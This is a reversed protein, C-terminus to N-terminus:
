HRILDVITGAHELHIIMGHKFEMKKGDKNNDINLGDIVAVDVQNLNEVYVKKNINTGVSITVNGFGSPEGIDNLLSDLKFSPKKASRYSFVPIDLEDNIDWSGYNLYRKHFVVMYVAFIVFLIGILGLLVRKFRSIFVAIKSKASVYVTVTVTIDPDNADVARVLYEASGKGPARFSLGGDIETKEIGKNSVEEVVVEPAYGDPDFFLDKWEIEETNKESDDTLLVIDVKDGQVLELPHQVVTIKMPLEASESGDSAIVKVEFEGGRIGAKITMSGDSTVNGKIGSEPPAELSFTLSDEEPDSFREAVNFAPLDKGVDVSQDQISGAVVPAQNEVTFTFTGSDKYGQRFMNDEVRAYVEYSGAKDFTYSAHYNYENSEMDVPEIGKIWLKAPHDKYLSESEFQHDKYIYSATFDVKTGRDIDGGEKTAHLQLNSEQLSILSLKYEYKGEGEITLNWDGSEPVLFTLVLYGDEVSLVHDNSEESGASVDLEKTTSPSNIQLNTVKTIDGTISITSEVTLQDVHFPYTENTKVPMPPTVDIGYFRAIIEEFLARAQDSSTLELPDTGTTEPIKERMIHYGVGPRGDGDRNKKSYNLEMAYIPWKNNAATQTADDVSYYDHAINKTDLNYGDSQGDVQGDSLLIIAAHNIDTGSDELVSNAAQLAYGLPTMTGEEQHDTEEVIIKKAERRAEQSSIDQLPFAVKVRNRSGPDESGIDFAKSGYDSGMVIISLNTNEHQLMDVFMNASKQTLKDLDNGGWMSGSCDLVLVFNVPKEIETEAQVPIATTGLVASITLLTMLLSAIRVFISEQRRSKGHKRKM